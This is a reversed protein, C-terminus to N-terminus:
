GPADITKSIVMTRRDPNHNRGPEPAFRDGSDGGARGMIACIDASPRAGYADVVPRGQLFGPYTAM